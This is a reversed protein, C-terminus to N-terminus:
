IGEVMGKEDVRVLPSSKISRLLSDPLPYGSTLKSHEEDLPTMELAQSCPPKVHERDNGSSEM